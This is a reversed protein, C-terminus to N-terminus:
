LTRTHTRTTNNICHYCYANFCYVMWQQFRFTASYSICLLSSGSLPNNGWHNDDCLSCNKATSNMSYTPGVCPICEFCLPCNQNTISVMMGESCPDSCRSTVKEIKDNNNLMLAKEKYASNWFGVSVYEYQGSENKKIEYAGSPDGNRDFSVDHGQIGAFTVNYLYGLLSSGNLENMMGDCQQATRNWRIPSDCNDDLFNQLAHAFTYM